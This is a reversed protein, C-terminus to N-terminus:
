RLIFYIVSWKTASYLFLFGNLQNHFIGDGFCLCLDTLNTSQWHFIVCVRKPKLMTGHLNWQSFITLILSNKGTINSRRFGVSFRSIVWFHHLLSFSYFLLFVTRRLARFIITQLTMRIIRRRLMWQGCRYELLGHTGM